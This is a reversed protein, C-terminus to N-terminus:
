PKVGFKVPLPHDLTDKNPTFGDGDVDVFVPNTVAAPEHNGWLPGMIKGLKASGNGAVAIIHADTELELELKKIRSQLESFRSVRKM